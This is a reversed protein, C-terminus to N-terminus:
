GAAARFLLIVWLNTGGFKIVPTSNKPFRLPSLRFTIYRTSSASLLRISPFNMSSWSIKLPHVNCALITGPDIELWGCRTLRMWALWGLNRPRARTQLSWIPLLYVFHFYFRQFLSSHTNKVWWTWLYEISKFLDWFNTVLLQRFM